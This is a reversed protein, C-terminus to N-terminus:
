IANTLSILFSQGLQQRRKSHLIADFYAFLLCCVRQFDKAFPAGHQFAREHVLSRPQALVSGNQM